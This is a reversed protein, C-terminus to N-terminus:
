ITTNSQLPWLSYFQSLFHLQLQRQSDTLSQTLSWRTSVGVKKFQQMDRASPILMDKITNAIRRGYVYFFITQVLICIAFWLGSISHRLGLRHTSKGRPFGTPFIVEISFLAILILIACTNLIFYVTFFRSKKTTKTSFSILNHHFFVRRLLLSYRHM